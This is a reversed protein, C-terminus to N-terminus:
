AAARRRSGNSLLFCLQASDLSNLHAKPTLVMKALNLVPAVASPTLNM